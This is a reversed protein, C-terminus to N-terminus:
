SNLAHNLFNPKTLSGLVSDDSCSITDAEVCGTPGTDDDDVSTDDDDVSTDDDDVSTDDDDVSTDDDDSPEPPPEFQTWCAVGFRTCALTCALTLFLTLTSRM